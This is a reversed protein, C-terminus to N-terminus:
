IHHIQNRPRCIWNSLRADTVCDFLYASNGFLEDHAVFLLVDSAFVPNSKTIFASNKLQDVAYLLDTLRVAPRPRKGGPNYCRTGWSFYIFGTKHIDAKDLGTDISNLDAGRGDRSNTKEAECIRWNPQWAAHVHQNLALALHWASIALHWTRSPTLSDTM